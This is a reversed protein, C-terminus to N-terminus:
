SRTARGAARRKSDVIMKECNTIMDLLKRIEKASREKVEEIERKIDEITVTLMQILDEMKYM